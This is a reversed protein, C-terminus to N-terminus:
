SSSPAIDQALERELRARTKAFVEGKVGDEKGTFAILAAELSGIANQLDRCSDLYAARPNDEGLTPVISLAPLAPPEEATAPEAASAGAAAPQARAAAAAAASEGADAM